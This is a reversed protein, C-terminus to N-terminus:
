IPTGYTTHTRDLNENGAIMQREGRAIRRSQRNAYEIRDITVGNIQDRIDGRCQDFGPIRGIVFRRDRGAGAGDMNQEDTM